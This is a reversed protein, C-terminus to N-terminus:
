DSYYFLPVKRSHSERRRPATLESKDRNRSIDRLEKYDLARSSFSFSHSRSMGHCARSYEENFMKTTDLTGADDDVLAALVYDTSITNRVALDFSANASLLLEAILYRDCFRMSGAELVLTLATKNSADTEHASVGSELLSAVSAPHANVVAFTLANKGNEDRVQGNAGAQLLMRFLKSRRNKTVILFVEDIDPSSTASGETAKLILAVTDSSGQAVAAKLAQTGDDRKAHIDAGKRLLYRVCRVNGYEAAVILPTSGPALPRFCERREPAPLNLSEPSIELLYALAEEGDDRAAKHLPLVGDPSCAM